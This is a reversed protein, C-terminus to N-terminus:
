LAYFGRAKILRAHAEAQADTRFELHMVGDALLFRYHRLPQHTM